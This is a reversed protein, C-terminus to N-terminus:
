PRVDVNRFILEMVRRPIEVLVTLSRLMGALVVNRRESRIGRSCTQAFNGHPSLM